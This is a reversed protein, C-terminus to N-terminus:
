EWYCERYRGSARVNETYTGAALGSISATTAANSWLYTYGPTGGGAVVSASGNTGGNCAVNTSSMTTTIAAPATLTASGTKTCGNADTATVTYTGATLNSITATTAGTNWQYTKPGTGGTATATASGNAGNNCSPNASSFSISIPAPQSIATTGTKTCGKSDTVTVTYAGNTLNTITATTAGTSWLYTYAPTGGSLTATATGNSGGNCSVSTNSLTLNLVTPQTITVSATATAAAADLVTVTYTGPSLNSITATIAANSWLYTYPTTGGTPIATASGDSGGNCSVNTSSISVALAAGGAVTVSGTVICGGADNVTVTYTGPALNSATPTKQGDSWNYGYPTTGGSPTATASGNNGSTAPTSSMAVTLAAAPQTVTYSGTVTAGANDTVTVTYAGAALNSITQTTAANSWLYSYPSTGGTPTATASGTSQGFCAVSTGSMAVSLPASQTITLNYNSIDFFINGVSRVMIRAQTTPTNPITVAQTGDNTTATALTTPYTLGGDTSLLIDVNACNIPAANSSAVNWTITQTTSGPWVIGTINPYTVLFPGATGAVTLIMDDEKTCGGGIHNDRVVVRWNLTRNTTTAPNYLVEWTTASNNRLATMNPLYRKNNSTPYYSRFMPGTANSVGPPMTLQSGSFGNMQEWCYTLTDAPNGDTAALATLVYPTGKPITYDAGAMNAQATPATNIITKVSCSNGGGTTVFNGIEQLSIAHFYADSHPQVDTSGCIGAYAQITTGSGPEFATSNNQNGNCSGVNSYFTHNGGYQHGMEHAVYDIDFADGIPAGSGTVGGAKNSGCVCGLYAVGGGGTSFVHGIDYNALGIVSNCTNINQTLMASGNTNSYPDTAANLYILSNNNAVLNMHISCDKEYVGNVRALSTAMGAAAGATTGGYYAAYEGTCALALRYTRLQCDGILLREAKNGEGDGIISEETLADCTWGETKPPGDKKFYTVYNEDDERSYPDIFWSGHIGSLVMAHFGFQTIDCRLYATPDEIGVGAFSHIQPFKAGLVPDMVPAEQIRFRQFRGDPMPLSLVVIKADAGDTFWMPAEALFSRMQEVNLRTTQYEVPVFWRSQPAVSISTESVYQWPNAQMQQSFAAPAFCLIGLLTAITSLRM